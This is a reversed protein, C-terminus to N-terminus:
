GGCAQRVGTVPLGPAEDDVGNWRVTGRLTDSRVRGLRFRLGSDVAVFTVAISDATLPDWWAHYMPNHMSLLDVRNTYHADEFVRDRTFRVPMSREVSDGPWRVWLDFCQTGITYSMDTATQLHPNHACAGM